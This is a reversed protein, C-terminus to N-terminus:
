TRTTPVSWILSRNTPPVPAQLWGRVANHDNIDVGLAGATVSVAADKEFAFPQLYSPPTTGETPQPGTAPQEVEMAEEGEAPEAPTPATSSVPTPASRKLGPQRWYLNHAAQMNPQQIVQRATNFQQIARTDPVGGRSNDAMANHDLPSTVLFSLFAQVHM